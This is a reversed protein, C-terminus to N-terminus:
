NDYMNITNRFDDTSETPDASNNSKKFTKLKDINYWDDQFWEPLFWVFGERQTMGMRYAQCM